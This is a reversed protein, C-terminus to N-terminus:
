AKRKTEYEKMYEDILRKSGAPEEEERRYKMIRVIFEAVTRVPAMIFKKISVFLERFFEM